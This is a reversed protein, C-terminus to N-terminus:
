RGEIGRSHPLHAAGIVGADAGLSSVVLRVDATAKVFVNDRLAPRLESQFLDFAAAIGGAFVLAELDLINQIPALGTGIAVGLERFTEM